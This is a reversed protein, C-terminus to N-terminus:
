MFPSVGKNVQVYGYKVAAIVLGAVSRVGMKRFINARHNEIAKPTTNLRDAIQVTTYEACCLRVIDEEIPMLKAPEIEGRVISRMYNRMATTTFYMGDSIVADIARRYEKASANKTLYGCAGSHIMRAFYLEEPHVTLTLVKIEPWQARLAETTAFGCMNPMSIDIFCIAPLEEAFKLKDLLEIGDSAQIIVSFGMKSLLSAIGERVIPHDDALAINVM